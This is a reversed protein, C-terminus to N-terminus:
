LLSHSGMGTNKGQSDLPLPAQYAVTWVTAFLRVRSLRRLVCAYTDIDKLSNINIEGM